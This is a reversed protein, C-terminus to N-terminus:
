AMRASTASSTTILALAPWLFSSIIAAWARDQYGYAPGHTILFGVDEPIALQTKLYPRAPMSNFRIGDYESEKPCLESNQLYLRTRLSFDELDAPYFGECPDKACILIDAEPPVFLRRYM